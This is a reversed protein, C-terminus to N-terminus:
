IIRQRFCRNWETHDAFKPQMLHKHGMHRTAVMWFIWMMTHKCCVFIFVIILVVRRNSDTAYCVKGKANYISVLAYKSTKKSYIESPSMDFSLLMETWDGVNNGYIAENSYAVWAVLFLVTGSSATFKLVYINLYSTEVTIDNCIAALRVTIFIISKM